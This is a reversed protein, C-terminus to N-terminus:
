KFNIIVVQFGISKLFESLLKKTRNNAKKLINSKLSLQKVKEVALTKIEQVEEPSWEGEDIFITFDSPNIVTSIIKASDISITCLSDNIIIDKESITALDNGAFTTGNGIITLQHYSSDNYETQEQEDDDSFLNTFSNTYDTKVEITLKTTDMVVEAYYTSSFLKAIKKSEKIVVATNKLKLPNRHFPNMEPYFYCLGVYSGLILVGLIILKIKLMIPDNNIVTGAISSGLNNKIESKVGDVLTNKVETKLEDVQKKTETKLGDIIKNKIGEDKNKKSM